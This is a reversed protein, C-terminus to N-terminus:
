SGQGRAEAAAKIAEILAGLAKEAPGIAQSVRQDIPAFADVWGLGIRVGDLQDLCSQLPDQPDDAAESGATPARRAVQVVRISVPTGALPLSEHVLLEDRRSVEAEEDPPISVEAGLVRLVKAIAYTAWTKGSKVTGIVEITLQSM